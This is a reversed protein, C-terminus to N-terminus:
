IERQASTGGKRFDDNSRHRDLGIAEFADVCEPHSSVGLLALAKNIVGQEACQPDFTIEGALFVAAGQGGIGGFYETEVYALGGIKSATRLLDILSPTLYQWTGIPEDDTPGVVKELNEDDLPLFAFGRSLSFYPQGALTGGLRMLTDGRGILGTVIYM